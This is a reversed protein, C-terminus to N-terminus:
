AEGLEKRIAEAIDKAAHSRFSYMLGDAGLAMSVKEARELQAPSTILARKDRNLIPDLAITDDAMRMNEDAYMEAIRLARQLGAEYLLVAEKHFPIPKSM